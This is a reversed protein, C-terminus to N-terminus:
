AVERRQSARNLPIVKGEKRVLSWVIGAVTIVIGGVTMWAAEMSSGAIVGIGGLFTVVHRLIGELQETFTDKDLSNWSLFLTAIAMVGMIIVQSLAEEFWGAIVGLGAIFTIIHRIIGSIQENNSTLFKIKM